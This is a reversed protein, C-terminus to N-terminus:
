RMVERPAMRLYRETFIDRDLGINYDVDSFVMETSSESDLDRAVSRVVTPYTAAAGNEMASVPEVALTEIVRYPRDNAKHYELRAPLLTQRDIWALYYAFEVSDPDKPTNKLVYHEGTTELLEHSDEEPSRGSIDEYLFDSGVFSTRKDSAAIRKVLDLSPLYMWRDDDADVHKHVMFVMKRVDSPELFYVYYQQQRDDPDADLRLMNFKRERVRGQKDIITLSVTGRCDVGQYLAMHNARAVIEDVTLEGPGAPCTTAWCLLGLLTAIIGSIIRM